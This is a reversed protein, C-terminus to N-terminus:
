GWGGLAGLGPLAKGDFDFLAMNEWTSGYWPSVIWDPAMYIIGLGKPIAKVRNRINRIYNRQGIDTAPYGPHLEWWNKVANNNNNDDSDLTFPYATEMVAVYKGYRNSLDRLNDGLQWLEAEHWYPYFSVGIVDFDNFNAREILNWFFWGSAHVDAGREHHLIIQPNAWSSADRVGQRAKRLLFGLRGWATDSDDWINGEPWLM